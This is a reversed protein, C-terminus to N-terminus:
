DYITIKRENDGLIEIKVIFIKKDFFNELSERYKEGWELVLIGDDLDDPDIGLTELDEVNKVRYLDFHYVPIDGRYTYRFSFTPSRVHQWDKVGLGKAIGKVFRTKGAGLDGTLLVVNGATLKRSFEEGARITEEESHTFIERM